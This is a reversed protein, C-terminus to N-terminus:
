IGYKGFHWYRKQFFDFYKWFYFNINKKVFLFVQSIIYKNYFYIKPRPATPSTQSRQGVAPIARLLSQCCSPSQCTLLRSRQCLRLQL